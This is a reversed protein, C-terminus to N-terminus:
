VKLDKKLETFDDCCSWVYLIIHIRCGTLDAVPLAHDENEGWAWRVTVDTVHPDCSFKADLEKEWGEDISEGPEMIVLSGHMWKIGCPHTAEVTIHLSTEDAKASLDADPEVGRHRACCRGARRWLTRAGSEPNTVIIERHRTPEGSGAKTESRKQKSM